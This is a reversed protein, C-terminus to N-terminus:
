GGVNDDSNNRCVEVNSSTVSVATLRQLVSEENEINILEQLLLNDEGDDPIESDDTPASQSENIHNNNNNNNNEVDLVGEILINDLGDNPVKEYGYWRDTLRQGHVKFGGLLINSELRIVACVSFYFSIHSEKRFLLM